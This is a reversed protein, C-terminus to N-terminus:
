FALSYTLGFSYDRGVKYSRESVRKDTLDRDYVIRRTSDTLNKVSLKLAFASPLTGELGVWALPLDFPFSQTFVFDLQYYSDIYRDLTLANVTLDTALDASGAADLLDSIAFLVLTMRTGWDPQEFSVDTNVIWEPQGFLRRTKSMHDQTPADAAATRFFLQSRSLEAETRDVEADIYTFNGGLSLYELLEPGLFGLNKRAEFELGWLTATNPNNFFTRYAANGQPDTPNRIVISEIPTDITKYFASVAALEGLEGWTYEVRADWSEVDSLQLQPNGVVLDDTGPEVTAYFGIERFSPRAVTRSWAGRVAMGDLPRYTLGASPLLKTKDIEGNLFALAPAQDSPDLPNWLDVCQLSPNPISGGPAVCPGVPLELGLLQDNYVASTNQSGIEGRFPNDLRDLFLYLSPFTRPAAAFISGTFPVNNSTIQLRELRVGGLADFDDWFTAKLGVNGADVQREADTDSIRLGTTTVTTFLSRGLAEPSVGSVAFNSSGGVTASELFQSTADRKASEFWGGTNFRLTVPDLIRREYELDFRLFYGTEDVDTDSYVIGSNVAFQEDVPGGAAAEDAAHLAERTVPFETPVVFGSDTHFRPEYFIRAGYATEKQTTKVKNGAWTLRLGEILDTRHEGNIQYVLLDRDFDFSRSPSFSSFWLPGRVASDIEGDRVNTIWSGLTACMEQQCGGAGFLPPRFPNPDTIIIGDGAYDAAVGSYDFGPIYGNERWEVAQTQKRTYFISGDLRHDGGEDLDFGIGGYATRQKERESIDLDFKGGSLSLDGFALSGSRFVEEFPTGEDFITPKRPERTEQYGEATQYDVEQALIGKFRLERGLFEVRGGLSTTVDTEFTDEPDTQIGTPSGKDYRRFEDIANENFGGGSQFKIEIEEPYDHTLINISGGSSNSPLEPGFTKAVVLNNVIDSAFLDLQVSQKDPDPSPIPASNYLTSSYRDELGRIIAFQGEVVNVGAVFKLADAVDSAAFKSFEEASLTNIMEDSEARSAELAEVRAGLVVFEEVGTLDPEGSPKEAEPALRFDVKDLQDPKVTFTALTSSQYGPKSFTLTYVGAPVGPFEFGGNPDTTQLDRRAEGGDAPAPWILEVTAYSVPAETRSDIVQGRITGKWEEQPPAKTEGAPAPAEAGEEAHAPVALAAFALGLAAAISRLWSARAPRFCVTIV